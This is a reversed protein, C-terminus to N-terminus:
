DRRPVYWRGFEDLLEEDDMALMRVVDVRSRLGPEARAPPRRRDALRNVPCSRQCEDCGYIRDGLAARHDAPFPGEAQLLWALCRRADVVGDEDLAGTPCAAQCRHCTGCGSGHEAPPGPAAVLPADTVVSGLLLRSGLGPLLILSNRGFWGLGARHAAARDVLANDDCVVAARWGAEGLREAVTGLAARLDQYHDLQAYEAVAASPGVPAPQRSPPQRRYDWAGVVLSRAGPLIRAPDTSRDPNRYTFQMGAHLGRSRREVLTARTEGFVEASAIGAAACGTALALDVVELSLQEATGAGGLGGTGGRAPSGSPASRGRRSPDVRTIVPPM